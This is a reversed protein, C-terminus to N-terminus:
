GDGSRPKESGLWNFNSFFSKRPSRFRTGFIGRPDCLDCNHCSQTEKVESFYAKLYAQRCTQLHVYTRLVELETWRRLKEQRDGSSKLIFYKQLNYDQESAMLCCHAPSGDRGARGVEQTYAELSGPANYHILIRINPYDVGMGFANTAVLIADTESGFTNQMKQRTGPTHGAHYSLVHPACAALEVALQDTVKRTGCYILVRGPPRNLLLQKLHKLKEQDSECAAVQLYLNKRFLSQRHLAPTKMQLQSQIDGIVRRTASGTLALIPPHPFLQRIVALQGYESRFDAGWQSICHAEDVAFLGVDRQLLWRQFEPQQLREPSLYLLCPGPTELQLLVANRQHSTLGSHLALALINKKRLQLVQDQMLAILPSIVVVMKGFVFAPLQYCLSKGAGTPLIAIVDRLKLLDQIVLLQGPKFDSLGFVKHLREYCVDPDTM